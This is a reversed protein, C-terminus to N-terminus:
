YRFMNRAFHDQGTLGAEIRSGHEGSGRLVLELTLCNRCSRIRRCPSNTLRVFKGGSQYIGARTFRCWSLKLIVADWPQSEKEFAFTIIARRCPLPDLHTFSFGSPSIDRGSIIKHADSLIGSKDDLPTLVAPRDYRMRHWGRLEALATPTHWSAVMQNLLRTCEALRLPSADAQTRLSSTESASEAATKQPSFRCADTTHPM